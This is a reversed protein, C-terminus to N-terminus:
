GKKEIKSYQNKVSECLKEIDVSEFCKIEKSCNKKWCPTCEVDAVIMEGRDYLDIEGPCTMTFFSVINKKLGVAIHLGLTDGTIVIDCLDVFQIGKRLGMDTPTAVVKNQLRKKLANNNQADERGGLLAIRDHPFAKNLRKLLSLQKDFSLKKYPYLNSCGTNFGIVIQGERIGQDRRYREIFEKENPAVNLIYEDRRYELAMAECLLEQETKKNHKFKMEDNLGLEYLHKAEENYPYIAGTESIGFGLKEKADVLNAVSGSRRSKDVNMLIDFRESLLAIVNENSYELVRDIYHNNELVALASKDTLWTIHSDKHKAKLPHLMATTRLVDGLADLNIILIRTGMPSYDRCDPCVKGPSCPKYGSFYRCDLKYKEM